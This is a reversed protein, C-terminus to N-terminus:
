LFVFFFLVFSLSSDELDVDLATEFGVDLGLDLVDDTALDLLFISSGSKPNSGSRSPTLPVMLYVM